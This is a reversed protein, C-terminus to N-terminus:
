EDRFCAKVKNTVEANEQGKQFGDRGEKALAVLSNLCTPLDTIEGVPPKLTTTQGDHGYVGVTQLGSSTTVYLQDIPYDTRDHAVRWQNRFAGTTPLEATLTALKSLAGFDKDNLVWVRGMADVAVNPKFLAVSFGDQEVRSNRTLGLVVNEKKVDYNAGDPHPTARSYWGAADAMASASLPNTTSPSIVFFAVILTFILAIGVRAPTLLQKRPTEENASSPLKIYPSTM